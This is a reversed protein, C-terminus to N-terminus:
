EPVNLTLIIPHSTGGPINKIVLTVKIKKNVTLPVEAISFLKNHKLQLWVPPNYHEAFSIEYPAADYEPWVDRNSAFDYFFAQGPFVLPLQPNDQKFRPIMNPDVRVNLPITVKESDGGIRTNVHLTILYRKGKADDPITGELMKYNLPSVSLTFSNTTRLEPSASEIKDIQLSLSPDQAPDHIYQSLDIAFSAGAQEEIAFYNLTPRQTADTAVPIRLLYPKSNGGTNSTATLTLEIVGGAFRTDLTGALVHPNEKSLVLGSNTLDDVKFTIQNSVNFGPRDELLTMLNLQYAENPIAAPITTISKFRPKQEANYDVSIKLSVFGSQSLGNDAGVLVEIDGKANPTGKIAFAEADFYLGLNNLTKRHKDSIMLKVKARNNVSEKYNIVFNSLPYNFAMGVKASQPPIAQMSLPRHMVRTAFNPTHFFCRFTEGKTEGFVSYILNGQIVNGIGRGTIVVVMDCDGSHWTAEDGIVAPCKGQVNAVYVNTKQPDFWVKTRRLHEYRMHMPVSKVENDYITEPFGQPFTFSVQPFKAKKFQENKEGPKLFWMCEQAMPVVTSPLDANSVEQAASAAWAGGGLVMAGLLVILNM